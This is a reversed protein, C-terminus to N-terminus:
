KNSIHEKIINIMVPIFEAPYVKVKFRHKSPNFIGIQNVLPLEPGGLQKYVCAINMTLKSWANVDNNLELSVSRYVRLITPRDELSNKLPNLQIM